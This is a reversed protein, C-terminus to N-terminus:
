LEPHTDILERRLWARALVWDDRAQSETIALETAVEATTLGVLYRLEVVRAQQPYSAELRSLAKLILSVDATEQALSLVRTDLERRQMGGGRKTRKASRAYDILVHKMAGVAAVRYQTQEHPHVNRSRHLRVIAENVLATPQLIHGPGERRMLVAAIDRLEEVLDHGFEDSVFKGM